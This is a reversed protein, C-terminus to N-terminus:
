DEISLAISEHYKYNFFQQFHWAHKPMSFHILMM